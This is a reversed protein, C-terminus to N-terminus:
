EKPSLLHHDFEWHCNPCLAILNEKSNIESILASDDFDKIAKIHCIEVHKDYGCHACVLPLSYKRYLGQANTRIRVYRNEKFSNNNRIEGKTKNM